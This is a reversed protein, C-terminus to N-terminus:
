VNAYVVYNDGILNQPTFTASRPQVAYNAAHRFAQSCWKAAGEGLEEQKLIMM